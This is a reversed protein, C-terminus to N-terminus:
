VQRHMLRDCVAKLITTREPAVSLAQFHQEAAQYLAEIRDETLTKLGLVNYIHTVAQIKEQPDYEERAIWGLLEQKQEPDALRLANILLFTKKNCLIDGGINKGFTKPDGYVDLLDDQLQFALGIHIGFDYLHEADALPAGGLLAGMKLACALLVATKLRIMEMYEEEKVDMRSEFEMDYQQGGCIELATRTFLDFIPKLLEPQTEGILRYAEILMADGSLIATNANWVKHVTPKNRRMDAEDMLDDHLLTFNHFVELGLAPRVAQEIETAYLDCAMLTLAPRIRKGGLALIYEIPEYLSKPPCDFQLRAIEQEIRELLQAFTRM